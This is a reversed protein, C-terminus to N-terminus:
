ARGTQDPKSEELGIHGKLVAISIAHLRNQAGLKKEAATLLNEVDPEPLTLLLSIEPPKKGEAVMLLCTKESLTLAPKLVAPGAAGINTSMPTAKCFFLSLRPIQELRLTGQRM